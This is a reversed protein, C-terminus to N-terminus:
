STVNIISYLFYVSSLNRESYFRGGSKFNLLQIYISLFKTKYPYIIRRINQYNGCLYFSNNM